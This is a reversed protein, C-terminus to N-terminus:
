LKCVNYLQRAEAIQNRLPCLIELFLSACALRVRIVAHHQVFHLRVHYEHANRWVAVTLDFKVEDFAADVEKHFLRECQLQIQRPLNPVSRFCLPQDRCAAELTPVGIKHFRVLLKDRVVLHDHDFAGTDAAHRILRPPTM